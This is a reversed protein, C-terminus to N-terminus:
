SLFIFFEFFQNVQPDLRYSLWISVSRLLFLISLYGLTLHFSWCIPHLIFAYRIWLSLYLPLLLCRAWIKGHVWVLLPWENNFPRRCTLHTVLSMATHEHIVSFLSLWLPFSHPSHFTVSLSFTNWLFFVTVFLHLCSTDFTCLLSLLSLLFVQLYLFSFYFTWLIMPFFPISRLLPPNVMDYVM